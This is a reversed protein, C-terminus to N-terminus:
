GSGDSGWIERRQEPTSNNWIDQEFRAALGENRELMRTVRWWLFKQIPWTRQVRSPLLHIM